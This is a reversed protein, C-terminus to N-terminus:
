KLPIFGFQRFIKSAQESRLFEIFRRSQHMDNQLVVAAPYVIPPHTDAPFADVIRVGSDAIADTHYVIGLPVEARSIFVLAFRVNAARALKHEVSEWVGLSRLASRAYIGAPVYAPDGMALRGNGLARALPMGPRIHIEVQSDVPAALVLRNHLLDTRTSADILGREQLYDMWLPAASIYVNAPAGQEIQRALAASGAYSVTVQKGSISTFRTAVANIVEQLSAAAFVLVDQAYVAGPVALTCGIVM